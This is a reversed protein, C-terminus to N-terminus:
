ERPNKLLYVYHVEHAFSWVEELFPLRCKPDINWEVTV